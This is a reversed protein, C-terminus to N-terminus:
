NGLLSVVAMLTLADAPRSDALKGDIQGLSKGVFIRGPSVVPDLSSQRVDTVLYGALGHAVDELLMARTQIDSLYTIDM